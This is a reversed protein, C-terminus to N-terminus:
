GAAAFAMAGSEALLKFKEHSANKEELTKLLLPLVDGYELQTALASITGYSAIAYHTVKQAGDLLAADRVVGTEIKDMVEKTEDILAEMAACQLRKPHVSLLESVRDIRDVQGHNQELYASFAKALEPNWAARALRPLARAVQKEASYINSLGHIFLDGATKIPM